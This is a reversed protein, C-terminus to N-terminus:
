CCRTRRRRSARCRRPTPLDNCDIFKDLTLDAARVETAGRRARDLVYAAQLRSDREAEVYEAIQRLYRDPRHDPRGAGGRRLHGAAPQLLDARVALRRRARPLARGATAPWGGPGTAGRAARTLTDIVPRDAAGERLARLEAARRTPWDAYLDELREGYHEKLKPRLLKGVGSLLGNDASFPETEVLFDAPMRLVAARRNASDPATVRESRSQSRRCRRAFKQLAEATPVVVALLDPRESNGYLFIQRVLAASAFMAELHAVAVFEGQPTELVNNRRDVYALRDPGLEAM